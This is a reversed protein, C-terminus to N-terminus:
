SNVRLAHMGDEMLAIQAREAHPTRAPGTSAERQPTPDASQAPLRTFVRRVRVDLAPAMMTLLSRPKSAIPHAGHDTSGYAM